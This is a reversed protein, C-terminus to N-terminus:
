IVLPVHADFILDGEGVLCLKVERVKPNDLDVRKKM